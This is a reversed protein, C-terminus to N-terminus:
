DLRYASVLERNAFYWIAFSKCRAYNNGLGMVHITLKKGRITTFQKEYRSYTRGDNVFWGRMWHSMDYILALKNDASIEVELWIEDM